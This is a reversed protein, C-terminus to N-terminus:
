GWDLFSEYEVIRFEGGIGLPDKVWAVRRYARRLWIFEGGRARVPFWAFFSEWARVRTYPQRFMEMFEQKFFIPSLPKLSTPSEPPPM